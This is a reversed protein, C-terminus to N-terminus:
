GKGSPLMSDLNGGFKLPAVPRYAPIDQPGAMSQGRTMKRTTGTNAREGEM